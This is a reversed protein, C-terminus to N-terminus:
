RGTATVALVRLHLVLQWRQAAPLFSSSPMGGRTNGGSVKWFLAGDTQAQVDAQTLDPARPTGRGDEGHCAGCRQGFLRQGGAAATPQNGLPNPRAADEASAAWAPDRVHVRETQAIIPVSCAMLAL